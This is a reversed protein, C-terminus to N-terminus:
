GVLKEDIDLPSDFHYLPELQATEDRFVHRRIFYPLAKTLQYRAHTSTPVAVTEYLLM